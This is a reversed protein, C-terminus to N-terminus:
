ISNSIQQDNYCLYLYLDEQSTKFLTYNLPLTYLQFPGLIKLGM